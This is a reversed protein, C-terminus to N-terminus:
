QMNFYTVVISKEFLRHQEVESVESIQFKVYPMPTLTLSKSGSYETILENPVVRMMGVKAITKLQTLM